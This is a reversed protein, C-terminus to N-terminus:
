GNLDNGKCLNCLFYKQFLLLRMSTCKAEFHDIILKDDPRHPNDIGSHTRINFRTGRILAEDIFSHSLSRWLSEPDDAISVYCLLIGLNPTHQKTRFNAYSVFERVRQTARAKIEPCHHALFLLIHHFSCFNLMAQESAHLSPAQKIGGGDTLNVITSNMMTCVVDLAVCPDFKVGGLIVRKHHHLKEDVSFKNTLKFVGSNMRLLQSTHEEKEKYAIAMLTQKLIPLVMQGHKGNGDLVLPLWHSLPFKFINKRVNEVYFADHSLLDMSRPLIGSLEIRKAKTHAACTVHPHWHNILYHMYNWIRNWQRKFCNNTEKTRDDSDRTTGTISLTIVLGYCM